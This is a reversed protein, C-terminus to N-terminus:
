PHESAGHSYGPAPGAARRLPITEGSKASAGAYYSMLV